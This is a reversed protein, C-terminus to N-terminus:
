GPREGGRSFTLVPVGGMEQATEAVGNMGRRAVIADQMTRAFVRMDESSLRPSPATNLLPTLAARAEASVTETYAPQKPAKM